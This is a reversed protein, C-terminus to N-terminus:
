NYFLLQAVKIVAPIQKKTELLAGLSASQRDFLQVDLDPSFDLSSNWLAPLSWELQM